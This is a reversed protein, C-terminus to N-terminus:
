GSADISLPSPQQLQCRHTHPDTGGRADRTRAITKHLRSHVNVRSTDHRSPSCAGIDDHKGLSPGQGRGDHIARSCSRGQGALIESSRQRVGSTFAFRSPSGRVPRRFPLSALDGKTERWARRTTM